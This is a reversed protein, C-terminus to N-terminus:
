AGAVAWITARATQTAARVWQWLDYCKTVKCVGGGEAVSEM